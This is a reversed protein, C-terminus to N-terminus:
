PVFLVNSVKVTGDVKEVDIRLRWARAQEDAGTKSTKVAVAVLVQAENGSVSMLGAEAITGASKSQVKKVVEALAQSRKSFDDYFTGTSSDLIRQVDSDANQWDISTLNVAAERGARLFLQREKQDQRLKYTQFGLWGATAAVVVAIALGALMALRVASMRRKAPEAETDEGGADLDDSDAVAADYDEVDETDKVDETDIADKSADDADKVDEAADTDEVEEAEEVNRATDEVDRDGGADEADEDGDEVDEVGDGAPDEVDEARAGEDATSSSDADSSLKREAAPQGVTETDSAEGDPADADTAM